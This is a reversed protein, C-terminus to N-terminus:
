HRRLSPTIEAKPGRTGPRVTPAQGQPDQAPDPAFPDIGFGAPPAKYPEAGFGSRPEEAADPQDSQDQDPSLRVVPPAGLSADASGAAAPDSGAAVPPAFSDPAPNNPQAGAQARPGPPAQVRAQPAAPAPPPGPDVATPDLELLLGDSLVYRLRQDLRTWHRRDASVLFRLIAGDSFRIQLPEGSLDGTMPELREATLGTLTKLSAAALPVGNLAAYIPPAGRPLLKRSCYDIPPAILRPYLGDDILHVLGEAGVYRRQGLPDLGGFGLTLNDLKVQLKAPALGLEGLAASQAPFSRQVPTGLISLLREVQGQDADLDMPERMRWGDPARELRIRPEGEREIEILRLEAASIGALTQPSEAVSLVHRIGLGLATLVLVLVLNVVWRAKM